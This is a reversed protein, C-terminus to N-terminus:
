KFIYKKTGGEFIEQLPIEYTEETLHYRVGYQLCNKLNSENEEVYDEITSFVEHSIRNEVVNEFSLIDHFNREIYSRSFILCIDKIEKLYSKEFDQRWSFPIYCGEVMLSQNNEINTKIIERVIPWLEKTLDEDSSEPTLKSNHSRIMGMKLHDMSMYPVHYRELLRQALLTKGTHSAGMILLIM